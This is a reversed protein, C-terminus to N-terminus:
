GAPYPTGQATGAEVVAIEEPTLSYLEYVLDDIQMDALRIKEKLAARARDTGAARCNQDLSIRRQVLREMRDHRDRDEPRDFDPTYVPLSRIDEWSFWQRDPAITRITCGFVFAILRSNLIGPLYLGAFPVAMTTDDGAVRGTDYLFAPSCFRAPFLIKKGPEQWFANSGSEWWLEDPGRRANLVEAWAQLHRAVLPHRRKLWRWPQEAGSKGATWGRPILLYWCGSWRANYRGIDTGSVLRRLLPRCQPDRKLWERAPIEGIVFPDDEPVPIGTHVQGMVFDELPTGRLSVGRVIEEARTDRFQWGGRDLQRQDAPFGHASVLSEPDAFFCPGAITVQFPRTLPLSRIRLLCLTGEPVAGPSGSIVVIEEIQRTSLVERLRSGAAGRLWRGNMLLSVSGGSRVLSLSKEAFYASRDACAHYAEYHQQFYQRIWERDEPPGEPPNSIVADFGGASFIEPFGQEGSFPRLTHRDRPPCFMWSEDRAIEPGVLANGCRITYRLEHFVAESLSLFDGPGPHQDGNEVLRFFLLLRTAAVAHPSLDLGYVSDTLIKRREEPDPKGSCCNELLDQYVAVLVSGAGCAPDLVRLPLPDRRSRGARAAALSVKVIYRVAPLPPVTISGALVTDHTDVIVAQHAASRRVTRALYRLLVEGLNEAPIAALNYHREPSDLASIIGRLVLDEVAFGAFDGAEQDAPTDGAYLGRSYRLLAPLARPDDGVPMNRITGAAILGRDEGFRILLLSFLIRNVATSIQESRMGPSNRAISRALHERWRSLDHLLATEARGPQSYEPQEPVPNETEPM